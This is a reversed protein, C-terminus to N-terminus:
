APFGVIIVDFEANAITGDCSIVITTGSVAAYVGTTGDGIGAAKSAVSETPYLVAGVPRRVMQTQPTAGGCEIWDATTAITVHVMEFILDTAASPGHQSGLTTSGKKVLTVAAAAM